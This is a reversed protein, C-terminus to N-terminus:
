PENNKKWTERFGRTSGWFGTCIWNGRASLLLKAPSLQKPWSGWPNKRSGPYIQVGNESWPCHGLIACYIMRLKWPLFRRAFIDPTLSFDMPLGETEHHEHKELEHPGHLFRSDGAFDHSDALPFQIRVSKQSLVVPNLSVHFFVGVMLSCHVHPLIREFMNPVCPRNFVSLLENIAHWFDHFRDNFSLPSFRFVSNM